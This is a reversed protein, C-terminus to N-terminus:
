KTSGADKASKDSKGTKDPRPADRGTPEAKGSLIDTLRTNIIEDRNAARKKLDNRLDDLRKENQRIQAERTALEADFLKGIAARLQDTLAAKEKDDTAARARVALDTARARLQREEIAKRFGEPDRKELDKLQEIEFRLHRCVQRFRDAENQKMRDLDPRLWPLNKDVYALIDIVEQDTVDRFMPFPREPGLGRPGERGQKGPGGDGGPGGRPPRATKEPTQAPAQTTTANQTATAPEAAQVCAWWACLAVGAALVAVLGGIRM